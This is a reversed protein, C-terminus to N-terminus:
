APGPGPGSVGDGLLAALYPTRFTGTPDLRARAAAADAWRPYAPALDEATRSHLKGWHPRGDYSLMLAEVDTFYATHPVRTFSHVAVYTTDRGYAPSLWVDDAPAFRMEVPFGVDHRECLRRLEAMVARTASRPVAHEMEVFRVRRRSVFVAASDDVYQRDSILKAGLRNVAGIWRPVLRQAGGLVALGANEVVDEEVVQRWRPLPAAPEGTRDSTKLQVRDTRPLWHLELHDHAAVMDDVDELVATLSAPQDHARLTFAPVTRLRVRTVLGCAGLGVRAAALDDPATDPLLTRLHGEGTVLELGEVQAALSAVRRGTGHTGTQTAGAVTQRDIDGLVAMARGHAALDPVLRHLPTGAPVWVHDEGDPEVPGTLRDTRVLVEDTAVLPTFSHGSGAARLGHGDRSVEHVLRVVEELDRPAAVQRPEARVTGAWSTWTVRGIM